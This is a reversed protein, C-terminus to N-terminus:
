DLSWASLCRIGTMSNLLVLSDGIGWQTCLTFDKLPLTILVELFPMFVAEAVGDYDVM